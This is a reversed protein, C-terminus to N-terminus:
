AVKMLHAFNADFVKEDLNHRVRYVDARREEDRYQEVVINSPSDDSWRFIRGVCPETLNSGTGVKALMAYTSSWIASSSFTQGEAASNRYADGVLVQRLGFIPALANSIAAMDGRATYVVRGVIDDNNLLYDLNTRNVILTDPELGTASRVKDKAANVQAVIDTSSTSWPSGSNDTYLSSGTWTSTNFLLSAARYELNMLLDTTLKMMTAAELDFDNKYLEREDDGVLAEVGYEVCAYTDDEAGLEVRPYAAKTGRSKNLSDIRMIDERTIKTFTAAKRPVDIVPLAKEAILSVGDPIFEMFAQALDLRPTAYTAYKPM